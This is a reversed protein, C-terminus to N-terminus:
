LYLKSMRNKFSKIEAITTQSLSEVQKTIDRLHELEKEIAVAKDLLKAEKPHLLHWAKSIAVELRDLHNPNDFDDMAEILETKISNVERKVFEECKKVLVELPGTVKFVKYVKELEDSLLEVDESDLKEQLVRIASMQSAHLQKEELYRMRYIEEDMLRQRDEERRMIPLEKHMVQLNATIRQEIEIEFMRQRAEERRMMDLNLVQKERALENKHAACDLLWLHRVEELYVRRQNEEQRMHDLEM